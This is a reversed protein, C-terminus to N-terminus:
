QLPDSQLCGQVLLQLTHYRHPQTFSDTNRSRSHLSAPNGATCKGANEPEEFKISLRSRRTKMVVM